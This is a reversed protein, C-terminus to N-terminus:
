SPMASGNPLKIVIEQQLWKDCDSQLMAIEEGTDELKFVIFEGERRMVRMARGRLDGTTMSSKRFESM